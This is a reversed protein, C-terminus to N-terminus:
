SFVMWVRMLLIKTRLVLAAARYVGPCSPKPVERAIGLPYEDRWFLANRFSCLLPALPKAKQGKLPYGKVLICSNWHLCTVPQDGPLSLLMVYVHRTRSEMFWSSLSVVTMFCLLFMKKKKRFIYLGVDCLQPYSESYITRNKQHAFTM